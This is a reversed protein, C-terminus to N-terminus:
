RPSGTRTETHAPQWIRRCIRVAATGLPRCPHLRRVTGLGDATRTNDDAPYLESFHPHLSALAQWQSGFLRGRRTIGGGPPPSFYRQQSIELPGDAASFPPPTLRQILPSTRRFHAPVWEVEDTESTSRVERALKGELPLRTSVVPERFGKGRPLLPGDAAAFPSGSATSSTHYGGPILLYGKWRM